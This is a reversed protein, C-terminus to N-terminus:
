CDQKSHLVNVLPTFASARGCSAFCSQNGLMVNGTICKIPWFTLDSISTKHRILLTPLGVSISVLRNVANHAESGLVRHSSPDPELPCGACKTVATCLTINRCQAAANQLGNHIYAEAVHQTFATYFKGAGLFLDTFRDFIARQQEPTVPFSPCYPGTPLASADACHTTAAILSLSFIVVLSQVM